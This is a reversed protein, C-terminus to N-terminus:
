FVKELEFAKEVRSMIKSLNVLYIEEFDRYDLVQQDQSFVYDHDYREGNRAILMFLFDDPSDYLRQGVDKGNQSDAYEKSLDKSYHRCLTDISFDRVIRSSAERNLGRDTLYRFLELQYLNNRNFSNKTGRGYAKIAPEIYGRTLWDQLTPRKIGTRKVIDFSSFSRQSKKM